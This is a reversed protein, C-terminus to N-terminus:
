RIQDWSRGTLCPEPARISFRGHAFRGENGTVPAGAAQPKIQAVCGAMHQRPALALTRRYRIVGRTEGGGNAAPILRMALQRRQQAAHDAGGHAPLFHRIQIARGPGFRKGGGGHAELMLAAGDGDHRAQFADVAGARGIHHAALLHLNQTREVQMGFQGLATM